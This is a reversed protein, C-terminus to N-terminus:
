QLPPQRRYSPLRIHAGACAVVGQGHTPGGSTGYSNITYSYIYPGQRGRRGNVNKDGPCQFLEKTSGGLARAVPSQTVPPGSQRWYIWDEAQFGYGASGGFPMEDDNEETYMQTGKYLQGQNNQCKATYTKQKAKGLIPLLIAALIGIIAIVM